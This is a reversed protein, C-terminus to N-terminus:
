HLMEMNNGQQQLLTSLGKDVNLMVNGHKERTTLMVYVVRQRCEAYHKWM